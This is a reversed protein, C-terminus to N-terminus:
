RRVCPRGVPLGKKYGPAFGNVDLAETVSDVHYINTQFASPIQQRRPIKMAYTRHDSVSYRYWTVTEM